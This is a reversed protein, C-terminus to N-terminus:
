IIAEKDQTCIVAAFGQLLHVISYMFLLPIIDEHNLMKEILERLRELGKQEIFHATMYMQYTKKGERKSGDELYEKILDSSERFFM